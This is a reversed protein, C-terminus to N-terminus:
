KASKLAKDLIDLTPQNGEIVMLALENIIIENQSRLGTVQFVANQSIRVGKKELREVCKRAFSKPLLPKLQLIKNSIEEQIAIKTM